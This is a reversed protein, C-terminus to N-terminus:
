MFQLHQITLTIKEMAQPIVAGIGEWMDVNWSRRFHILQYAILGGFKSQL